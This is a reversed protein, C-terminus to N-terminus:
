ADFLEKWKNFIAESAFNNKYIELNYDVFDHIKFEDFSLDMIDNTPYIKFGKDEVLTKFSTIEKRIFIKKGMYLYAFVNGLGQQRNQNLILIDSSFFKNSFEEPSLIDEVYEFKDGFIQKGKEIIEVNYETQGYSLPTRILINEDRFKSLMDLVELTSKDASNNIQIKLVGDNSPKVTDLIAPTTPTSYVVPYTKKTVKYKKALVKEDGELVPVYGKFNKRVFDHKFNRKANYMDGGWVIWYAKEKLINKHKFLYTIAGSIFLSHFFLKNVSSFELNKLSDIEIVNEGEPMLTPPENKLLKQCLILHDNKNFHSNFFDVLPKNFKDNYMIHVYKASKIRDNVYNDFESIRASFLKGNIFNFFKVFLNNSKKMEANINLNM